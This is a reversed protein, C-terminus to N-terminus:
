RNVRDHLSGTFRKRIMIGIIVAPVLLLIWGSGLCFGGGAVLRTGPLAQQIHTIALSDKFFDEALVLLELGSLQYVPKLDPVNFDLTLARLGSCDELPSLDTIRDCDVLELVQLAVHMSLIDAFEMQSTNSPISLRSLSPMLLISKIDSINQCGTLGLCALMPLDAAAGIEKLTECNILNLNRIKSSAAIPSLDHIDSEIISLSELSKLKEFQFDTIDTSDWYEIILSNMEPLGYLFDPDITDEGSHWLLKLHRLHNKADDSINSYNLDDAILWEPNFVSIVAELLSDGEIYLGPNSIIGSITKLSNIEAKSLPLSINLSRIGSLIEADVEALWEWAESGQSLSVAILENNMYFGNYITDYRISLNLGDTPNYRYCLIEDGMFQFYILDGASVAVSVTDKELYDYHGALTYSKSCNVVVPAGIVDIIYQEPVKSGSFSGCGAFLLIPLLILITQHNKHKQMANNKMFNIWAGKFDFKLKAPSSPLANIVCSFPGSLLVITKKNNHILKNWLNVM